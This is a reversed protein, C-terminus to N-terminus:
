ELNRDENQALLIVKMTYKKQTKASNKGLPQM